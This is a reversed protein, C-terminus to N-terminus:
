RIDARLDRVGRGLRERLLARLTAGDAHWKQLQRQAKKVDARDLAPILQEPTGTALAPVIAWDPRVDPTVATVPVILGHSSRIKRRTGIVSVDFYPTGGM